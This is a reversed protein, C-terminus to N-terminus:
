KGKKSKPTNAKISLQEIKDLLYQKANVAEDQSEFVIWREFSPRITEIIINDLQSKIIPSIKSM